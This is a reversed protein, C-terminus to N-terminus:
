GNDSQNGTFKLELSVYRVRSRKRGIREGPEEGGVVTLRKEEKRM